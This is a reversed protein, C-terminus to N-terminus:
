NETFLEANQYWTGNLANGETDIYGWKKGKRVRAIGEIFGKAEGTFTSFGATIIYEDAIVMKGEKNIFGWLKSIKVPALGDESFIDADRYQEAIVVKGTPDCYGWKKGDTSVPALGESFARAKEFKPKIVWEGSKNVFGMLGDKRAYTLEEGPQFKWLKVAGKVENFTGNAIIGHKDGKEAIIGEPAYNGIETYIPEVVIKGTKDILGWLVGDKFRAHGNVFKKIAAYKPEIVIEGQPNIAGIKGMDDKILAIGDNFDYLKESAPMELKKGAKDIYQWGSENEVIAIGSDFPKAAEYQFKVIVEGAPNIYGWKEGDFVAAAGDSFDKAKLYTPKVLFNGSEDIYGFKGDQRVLAIRQAFVSQALFLLSLTFLLNKM